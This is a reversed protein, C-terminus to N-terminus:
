IRKLRKLICKSRKVPSSVGEFMKRKKLHHLIMSPVRKEKRRRREVNIKGRVKATIDENRTSINTNEKGENEKMQVAQATVIQIVIMVVVVIATRVRLGQGVIVSKEVLHLHHDIDLVVETNELHDVITIQIKDTEKM